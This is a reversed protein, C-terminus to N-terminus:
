NGHMNAEKADNHIPVTLFHYWTHNKPSNSSFQKSLKFWEDFFKFFNLIRLQNLFVQFNLTIEIKVQWNNLKHIGGLVKNRLVAFDCLSAGFNLHQLLNTFSNRGSKTKCRLM